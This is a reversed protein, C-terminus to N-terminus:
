NVNGALSRLKPQHCAEGARNKGAEGMVDGLAAVAALPCKEIVM